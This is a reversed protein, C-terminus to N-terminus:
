KMVAVNAIPKFGSNVTIIKATEGAKPKIYDDLPYMGFYQLTQNIAKVETLRGVKDYYSIYHIADENFITRKNSGLVWVMPVGYQNYTIQSVLYDPAKLTDSTFYVDDNKYYKKYYGDEYEVRGRIVSSGNTPDNFLYGSEFSADDALTHMTDDYGLVELNFEKYGEAVREATNTADSMLFYDHVEFQYADNNMDYVGDANAYLPDDWTLDVHYWTDELKVLNWMHKLENSRIQRINEIPYGLAKLICPYAYSLGQCVGKKNVLAGYANYSFGDGYDVVGSNDDKVYYYAFHDIIYDHALLLKDLDTMGQFYIEEKIKAIEAVLEKYKEKLGYLAETSGDFDPEEYAIVPAFWVRIKGSLYIVSYGMGYQRPMLYFYEPNNQLYRAYVEHIQEARIWAQEEENGLSYDLNFDVYPAWIYYRGDNFRGTTQEVIKEPSYVSGLKAYFEDEWSSAANPSLDVDGFFSVPVDDIVEDCYIKEPLSPAVSSYDIEKEAFATSGMCFVFICLALIKKM